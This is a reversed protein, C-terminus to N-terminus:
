MPASGVAGGGTHRPNKYESETTQWARLSTIACSSHTSSLRNGPRLSSSSVRHPSSSAAGSRRTRTMARAAVTATTTSSAAAMLPLGDLDCSATLASAVTGVVSHDGVVSTGAVVVVWDGTGGGSGVDTGVAATAVVSGVVTGGILSGTGRGARGAGDDPAGTGGTPRGAVAATAVAPPPVLPVRVVAAAAKQRPSETINAPEGAPKPVSDIHRSTSATPPRRAGSAAASSAAWPASGSVTTTWTPVLPATVPPSSSAM